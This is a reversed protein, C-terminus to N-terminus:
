GFQRRDLHRQVVIVVGLEAEGLSNVLHTQRQGLQLPLPVALVFGAVIQLLLIFLKRSGTNLRFFGGDPELHQASGDAGPDLLQM